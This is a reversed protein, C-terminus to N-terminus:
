KLRQIQTEKETRIKFLLIIVFFMNYHYLAYTGRQEYEQLAKVRDLEM